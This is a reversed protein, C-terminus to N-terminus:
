SVAPPARPLAPHHDPARSLLLDDPLRPTLYAARPIRCFGVPASPIGIHPHLKCWLCHGASMLKSPVEDGGPVSVVGAATCVERWPAAAEPRAAFADLAPALAALLIAFLAICLAPRRVLLIM